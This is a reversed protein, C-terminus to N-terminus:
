PLDAISKKAPLNDYQVVKKGEATKVQKGEASSTVNRNSWTAAQTCLFLSLPNPPGSSRLSV